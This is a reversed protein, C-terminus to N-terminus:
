FNNVHCNEHGYKGHGAMQMVDFPRRDHDCGSTFGSLNVYLSTEIFRMILAAM